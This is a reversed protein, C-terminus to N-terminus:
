CGCDNDLEDSVGGLPVAAQGVKAWSPHGFWWRQVLLTDRGHILRHTERLLPNLNLPHNKLWNPARGASSFFWHHVDYERSIKYYRRYRRVANSAEMSRDAIRWARGLRVASAGGGTLAGLAAMVGVQKWSVCKFSKGEVLMQFAVDSGGGILAGAIGFEGTPDTNLLPNGLAYLYPNGDGGLGIPDAQVYRGTVPDYDRYRNYYLDSLVRSQGPFGPALYDNPTTAPSGTADTVVLPVGLHNGHVWNLQILGSGDPTAVALPTYGGIVDGGGFTSAAYVDPGAWIFEAKVDAASAGYEGMVRGDADYVFHRTGVSDTMTVRDDLGNYAFALSGNGTRQYSVLRAYGDYGATVAVSGPRSESATNGRGDYGITRTGSTDSLTALQNTGSTYSYSQAGAGGGSSAVAMTLRDMSDYGYVVSGADNVLDAISAINGTADYRYALSSLSANDATRYLRRSVLRGESGWDNTVALGNGLTMAKVPGFPEYAYSSALTTWPAIASSAKTEVLSIRGKSDYGYHVIRGSPYTIQTIRGALDYEYLLQATTSTGIAQQKGTLNGRHDYRFQTTGSDDIVQALRGVPYSGSLGGADWVYQITESAPRGQPVKRTVRGLLDHTYDVVQGRGDSASVMQGASDYWYTNTGRDPSVEQILDGFGNHVFQTTVSVPDTSSVANDQADYATATTGGDPALTTVVRQLADFAATTAHGNPSVDQVVNGLKDYSWRETHGPGTTEAIQRGLEDFTRKVQRSTAGNARKVAESLVNGAADYSYAWREGTAARMATVRGAADYDIFLTDTSPLTMSTVQGVADYTMTTVADLASNSPHKVNISTVRGLQDYAYATVIGNPDTMTGPRGGSDYGAFTTVQGLANTATLLNGSSDYTFSTVDDNNWADPPLPGNISVLRGNAAWTYNWTRTQGTTSYPVTGSTTDTLTVTELQGTATYTRSETLGSRVISVPANFTAHWAITTTREDVTGSAEAISIPRGRSDRTYTTVRGEEDTMTTVYTNAGYTISSNSAPTTPGALGSVSTLRYDVPGSGSFKTFTHDAQKGLPNTVLRKLSTGSNGYDVQYKNAGNAGQTRTARCMPDQYEYDAIQTGSHDKIGTIYPCWSFGVNTCGSGMCVYGTSYGYSYSASDVVSNASNQREVKNLYRPLLASSNSQDYSLSTGDPLGIRSVTTPFPLSGAPPSSLTSFQFKNWTFTATRGFSDTISGLSSDPNYAFSWQYGSRSLKQTPWAKLYRSRNPELRTQMTWVTDASDTLKWISPANDVDALNGPLTGVFELKLYKPAQAAGWAPDPAWQGNAQLVYGFGTGDPALVAVKANPAAPSGSFNGLQIEYGFDFNWLPSLWRPLSRPLVTGDIPRGVQFSRYYRGILFDGDESEYDVVHLVKAGTALVIPNGVRPNVRGPEECECDREIQPNEVCRGDVVPTFGSPCVAEVYSPLVTGCGNGSGTEEPCLYQFSTWKCDYRTWNGDVPMAGIFRSNPSNAMYKQWQAYCAESAYDFSGSPGAPSVWKLPESSQARAVQLASLGMVALVIMLARSLAM